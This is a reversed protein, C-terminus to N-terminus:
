AWPESMARLRASYQAPAHGSFEHFDRVMHMQDYYGLEHAIDTWTDGDSTLKAALAAHFRVIRAYLKPSTGVAERFRRDFQRTSLGASAAAEDIRLAGHQRLLQTAIAAIANPKNSRAVRTLLLNTAVQIRETFSPADALKQEFDLIAPGIVSRADEDRDALETMPVGFLQHFGAPQFHVTFVDFRGRLVLEARRHIFPGVVVARSALERTGSRCSRVLYRDALYFELIQQPRAAIPYIVAGADILAERQQFYRVYDRLPAVPQASTLKM